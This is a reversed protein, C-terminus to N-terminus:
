QVSEAWEHKGPLPGVYGSLWAELSETTMDDAEQFLIVDPRIAAILRAFPAPEAIPKGRLVNMSLVRITGEPQDPVGATAPRAVGPEPLVFVFPDSYRAVGGHGDTILVIGRASGARDLGTGALAPAHRDLKAEFWEAAYTPSAMFGVDAHSHRTMVGNEHRLVTMGSTFPSAPEGRQIRRNIVRQAAGPDIENLPPSFMIELDVGLTGVDPPGDLRKGTAPDDDLDFVLRTTEDNAQLTGAEGPSFRFFVTDADAVTVVGGRWEDLEGDIAITRPHGPGGACATICPLVVLSVISLLSRRAAKNLM